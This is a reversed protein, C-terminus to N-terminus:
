EYDAPRIGIKRCASSAEWILGDVRSKDNQNQELKTAWQEAFVLARQQNDALKIAVQAGPNKRIGLYMACTGVLRDTELDASAPLAACSLVAALFRKM